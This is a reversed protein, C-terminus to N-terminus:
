VSKVAEPLSRTDSTIFSGNSSLATIKILELITKPIVYGVIGGYEVEPLYSRFSGLVLGVFPFLWIIVIITLALYAIANSIARKKKMSTEKAM